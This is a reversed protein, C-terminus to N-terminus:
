DFTFHVRFKPSRLIVEKNDNSGSGSLRFTTPGTLTADASATSYMSQMEPLRTKADSSSPQSESSASAKRRTGRTNASLHSFDDYFYQAERKKM